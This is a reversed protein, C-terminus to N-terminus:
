LKMIKRLSALNKGALADGQNAAYEFWRIAEESNKSVGKGRMYMIGLYRASEADGSNACKEFADFADSMSTNTSRGWYIKKANERIQEISESSVNSVKEEGLNDSISDILVKEKKSYASPIRLNTASPKPTKSDPLVVESKEDSSKPTPNLESTISSFNEKSLDPTNGFLNQYELLKSEAGEEHLEIARNIFQLALDQKTEGTLGYAYFDAVMIQAPGYERKAAAEFHIFALEKDISIGNGELFSRGMYFHAAPLKQDVGNQLLAIGERTIDKSDIVSDALSHIKILASQVCAPAYGKEASIDYYDAAIQMDPNLIAQVEDSIFIEAM